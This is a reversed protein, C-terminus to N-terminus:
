FVTDLNIALNRQKYTQFIAHNKPEDSRTRAEDSRTRKAQSAGVPIFALLSLGRIALM